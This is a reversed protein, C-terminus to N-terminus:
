GECLIVDDKHIYLHCLTEHNWQRNDLDLGIAFGPHHVVLLEDFSDYIFFVMGICNYYWTNSDYSCKVVKVFGTM